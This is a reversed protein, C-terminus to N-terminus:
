GARRGRGVIGNLGREVAVDVFGAEQYWRRVAVITQPHDHAPAYMDFTDLIAWQKNLEYPLGLSSYEIIPMFRAGVRGALKRLVVAIPLLYPVGKAVITYLNEKKMRKTLPRLLYKWQLMAAFSRAYVDVVLQGGPRVYKVLSQFAREPDPTHQLVGLCIVKDFAKEQLAIRFIDGQFLNLNSYRSNNAWNADVAASYDFSFVEAGTKLLVETFRGAGSGAELIREGEMREPWGTVSFLRSRSVPYGTQSDLQTKRHISWQYGFSNAYNDTDVFRPIENRIQFTAPCQSCRLSAERENKPYTTEIQEHFDLKGAGCRPCRFYETVEAKM